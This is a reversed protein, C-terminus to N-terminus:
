IAQFWITFTVNSVYPATSCYTTTTWESQFECDYYEVIKWFTSQYGYLNFQHSTSTGNFQWALNQTFNKVQTWGSTAGSNTFSVSSSGNDVRTPANSGSWAILGVNYENCNPSHTATTITMYMRQQGIHNNKFTPYASPFNNRLYEIQAYSGEYFYNCDVNLSEPSLGWSTMSVTYPSAQTGSGSISSAGSVYSPPTYASLGYFENFGDPVSLGATSSLSRLSVNSRSGGGFEDSIQSIALQGSSPLAM